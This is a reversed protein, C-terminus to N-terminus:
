KNRPTFADKPDHDAQRERGSIGDATWLEKTLLPFEPIGEQEMSYHQSIKYLDQVPWWLQQSSTPVSTKDRGSCM